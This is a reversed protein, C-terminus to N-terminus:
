NDGRFEAIRPYREVLEENLDNNSDAVLRLWHAIQVARLFRGREPWQSQIGYLCVNDPSWIGASEADFTGQWCGGGSMGFPEPPADGKVEDPGDCWFDDSRDFSLVIDNSVDPHRTEDAISEWLQPPVPKTTLSVNHLKCVGADTFRLAAVPYGYVRTQRNPDGTKADIVRDLTLAAAELAHYAECDALEIFGVDVDEFERRQVNLMEVNLPASLNHAKSVFRTHKPTTANLVHGATALFHREGIDVLVGTAIKDECDARYRMALTFQFLHWAVARSAEQHLEIRRPHEFPKEFGQISSQQNCHPCRYSFAALGLDIEYEESCWPCNVTEMAMSSRWCRFKVLCSPKAAYRANKLPKQWIRGCLIVGRAFPPSTEFM